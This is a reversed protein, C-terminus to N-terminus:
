KSHRMELTKVIDTFEIEQEALMVFMHYILDATENMIENKDRNKAAIVTEIAEEGVKQIIRNTGRKFLKTTYSGEPLKEKRDKILAFLDNLFSISAPKEEFFCSYAGTHCTNGEPVAKILLSDNDCDQFMSVLKLYNGSTEGKTWLREKTRSFFTVLGTEITKELAERNMFGLMLVEGNSNDTVVAPILGGMKNFDLKSIEIM